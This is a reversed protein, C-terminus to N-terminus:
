LMLIHESITLVAFPVRVYFSRSLLCSWAISRIRFFPSSPNVLLFLDAKAVVTARFVFDAGQSLSSMM